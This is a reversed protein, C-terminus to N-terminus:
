EESIINESKTVFSSNQIFIVVKNMSDVFYKNLRSRKIKKSKPVDQKDFLMVSLEPNKM